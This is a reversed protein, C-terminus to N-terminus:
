DYKLEAPRQAQDNSKQATSPAVAGNCKDCKVKKPVGCIGRRRYEISHGCDLTLRWCWPAGIESKLVRSSM